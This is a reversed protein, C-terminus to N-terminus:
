KDTEQQVLGDQNITYTVKNSGGSIRAIFTQGKAELSLTNIAGAVKVATDVGLDALTLAYNGKAKLWEKQKYYVLWLYKKQLEAYPMKFQAVKNGKSFLLYGWREPCHMNIVGQPSWVWNREPLTRGTSDKLKRYEGGVIETDYQVRSFNIRWMSGNGPKIEQAMANLAKFPIAMEVTWGTDRDAPNNVTGQVQVASRLGAADWSIVAKGGNRYPKTLLLDFITNYANVELEYYQHMTNLPDIFLEFDNNLYIIDDHKKLTAWVHPDSIRAAVYLCSDDWLMKMKTQLSPNPKLDGEIDVFDTTWAAQQWEAKGINGDIVPAKDVHKVVYHAPVTFLNAFRAFPDQAKAFLSITCLCVAVLLIKIANHIRLPHNKM